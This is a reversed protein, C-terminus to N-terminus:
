GEGQPSPIANGEETRRHHEDQDCCRGNPPVGDAEQGRGCETTFDTSDEDAYCHGGDNGADNRIRGFAPCAAGLRTASTVPATFPNAAAIPHMSPPRMASWIPRNFPNKPDPKIIATTATTM